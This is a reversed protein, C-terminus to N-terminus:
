KSKSQEYLYLAIEYRKNAQDLLDAVRERGEENGPTDHKQAFEEWFQLEAAAQQLEKDLDQV